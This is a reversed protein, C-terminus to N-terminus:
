VAGPGAAPQDIPSGPRWRGAATHALLVLRVAVGVVAPALWLVSGDAAWAAAGLLAFQEPWARRGFRRSLWVGLGGAVVVAATRLCRVGHGSEQVSWTLHPGDEGPPVLWTVRDGGAFTDDYPLDAGDGAVSSPADAPRVAETLQQRWEALTIGNPGAPEDVGTVEARRLEAAARARAAAVQPGDTRTTGALRVHAAARYLTAAAASLPARDFRLGRGRTVVTWLAPGGPLTEGAASYVPLEAATPPGDDATGTWVVQLLRVGTRFPLPVVVSDTVGGPPPLSGGDLAIARVHVPSPWTARLDAAAGQALWVSARCVWRGEDARAVAVDTLEVRVPAGGLSRPGVARVTLRWDDATV